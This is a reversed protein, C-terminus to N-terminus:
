GHRKRLLEAGQSMAQLKLYAGDLDVPINTGTTRRKGSGAGPAFGCNPNLTIREKPVFKMAKEAIDAVQEPTEINADFPHIVGLGLIKDKPFNKLGETIGEQPTAFELAFRDINMQDLVSIIADYSERTSHGRTHCVHLNLFVDDVGEVAGNVCKVCLEAERELEEPIEEGESAWSSPSPSTSQDLNADIVVPPWPNDIQIADVGLKALRRCEERIIPIIADMFDERTAYANISHDASWMRHALTYPSPLAVIIPSDTHDRLFEAERAAIPRLPKLKSIVGPDATRAPAARREGIHAGANPVLNPAFGEVCEAFVTAYHTRRWEGDSVVDLGAREQLRIALPVADDLLQDADGINISGAKRQAILERVWQPRPLSGVPITPFLNDEM